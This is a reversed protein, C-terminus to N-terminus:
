LGNLEVAEIAASAAPIGTSASRVPGIGVADLRVVDGAKGTKLTLNAITMPLRNTIKITTTGPVRRVPAVTVFAKAAGRGLDAVLEAATLAGVSSASRVDFHGLTEWEGTATGVRVTVRTTTGSPKSTLLAANVLLTGPRAELSDLDTVLKIPLGMMVAGDLDNSIRKADKGTLGDGHLRVLLRGSQFYAPDVVDTSSSDLAEVFRSAQALEHPNFAIVNQRAIQDFSMGNCVHWMAAQAVTQSTGVTSLSKLARRVRTDPSYTEVDKLTFVNRATPTPLGFNLCVSPVSVEITQNPSVALGEPAPSVSPMSRFGATDARQNRFAGFGGLNATPVGLGMSQFGGQGTASAAVLGPPIVVNFRKSTKNQITFKVRSEGAGRVTVDLDGNKAADLIQVTQTEAPASPAADGARGYASLGLGVLAASVLRTAMRGFRGLPRKRM